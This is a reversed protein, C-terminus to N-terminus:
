TDIKGNATTKIDGAAIIALDADAGATVTGTITISGTDNYYTPDGLMINNGLTLEQTSASIHAMAACTNLTGTVKEVAGEISGAGGFINLNQSLYDGGSINTNLSGKYLSDRIEINGLLAQFTGGTGNINLAQDAATNIGINGTASSLLGANTVNGSGAFISLNGVATMSPAVSASEARVNSISGGAILNLAGNSAITGSNVIDQVAQLTWGSGARMNSGILASPLNNSIVGGAGNLINMAFISGSSVGGPTTVGAITGFNQLNGAINVQSMSAFNQIATVNQPIVINGVQGSVLNNLNLTGGVATGQGSIQLTQNGSALVQGVAVYQAPTVLQGPVVTQAAGGVNIAASTKSQVVINTNRSSLDMNVPVGSM